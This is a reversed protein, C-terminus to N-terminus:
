MEFHLPESRSKPFLRRHRGWEGNQGDRLEDLWRRQTTSTPMTLRVPGAALMLASALGVNASRRRTVNRDRRGNGEFRGQGAACSWRSRWDSEIHGAAM